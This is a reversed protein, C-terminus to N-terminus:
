SGYICMLLYYFSIYTDIILVYRINNLIVKSGLVRFIKKQQVTYSINHFSLFNDSSKAAFSQRTISRGRKWSFTNRYRNLTSVHPVPSVNEDGIADDLDATEVSAVSRKVASNASKIALSDLGSRVRKRTLTYSVQDTEPNVIVAVESDEELESIPSTSCSSVVVEVPEIELSAESIPTTAEVKFSITSVQKRPRPHSYSDNEEQRKAPITSSRKQEINSEVTELVKNSCALKENLELIINEADGTSTTVDHDDEELLCTKEEDNNTRTKSLLENNNDSSNDQIQSNMGIAKKTEITNAEEGDNGEAQTAAAVTLDNVTGDVKGRMNDGNLATPAIVHDVDSVTSEVNYTAFERCSTLVETPKVCVNHINTKDSDVSKENESTRKTSNSNFVAPTFAVKLIDKLMVILLSSVMMANIKLMSIKM